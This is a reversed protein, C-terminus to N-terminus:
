LKTPASGVALLNGPPQNGVRKLQLCRSEVWFWSLAAVPLVCAMSLLAFATPGIQKLGATLLLQQIPFAYIYIGYSFDVYPKLSFGETPVALGAVYFLLYPLAFASTLAWNFCGGVATGVLALGGLWARRPIRTRYLYFAAGSLFYVPLLVNRGSLYLRGLISGPPFLFINALAAFLCVVVGIPWRKIVGLAGLAAVIAYCGAEWPISWLSGNISFQEPHTAFLDGIRNQFQMLLSNKLVYSLPGPELKWYEASGEASPRLAWAMPGIALATVLLCALYGPFIRLVRNRTFQWVSRSHEWSATILAGSLVFFGAVALGGLSTQYRTGTLVHGAGNLIFAHDVLVALSLLHRVTGLRNRGPEFFEAFNALSKM